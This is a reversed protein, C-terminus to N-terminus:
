GRLAKVMLVADDPCLAAFETSSRIADPAAARGRTAFGLRAFYREADITLLWLERVNRTAAAAELAAVLQQGLGVGRCPATVLLSRLLGIGAFQELGVIGVPRGARTALLFGPMHEPRLDTTPLRAAGLLELVTALDAATASRIVPEPLM